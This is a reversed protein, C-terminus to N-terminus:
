IRPQKTDPTYSTERAKEVIDLISHFYYLFILYLANLKARM